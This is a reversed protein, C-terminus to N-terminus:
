LIYCKGNVVFLDVNEGVEIRTSTEVLAEYTAVGDSGMDDPPFTTTGILYVCTWAKGNKRSVFNRIGVVNANVRM